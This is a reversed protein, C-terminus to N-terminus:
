RVPRAPASRKPAKSIISAKLALLAKAAEKESISLTISSRTFM